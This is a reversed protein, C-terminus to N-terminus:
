KEGAAVLQSDVKPKKGLVQLDLNLFHSNRLKDISKGILAPLHVDQLQFSM